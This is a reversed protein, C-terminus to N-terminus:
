YPKFRRFVDDAQIPLELTFCSQCVECAGNVFSPQNQLYMPETEYLASTRVVRIGSRDLECCALDLMAIRDGVNSGLAVYVRHDKPAISKRAPYPRCNEYRSRNLESRLKMPAFHAGDLGIQHTSIGISVSTLRSGKFTKDSLLFALECLQSALVQSYFNQTEKLRDVLAQHVGHMSDKAASRSEATESEQPFQKEWGSDHATEADANRTKTTQIEVEVTSGVPNMKTKFSWASSFRCPCHGRKKYEPLENKEVQLIAYKQDPAYIMEPWIILKITTVNPISALADNVM